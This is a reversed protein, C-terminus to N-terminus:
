NGDIRIAEPLRVSDDILSTILLRRGNGRMYLGLQLIYSGDLLGATAVEHRQVVIDGPQLMSAAADWGDHQNAIEGQEDVLHVFSSLDDPLSALVQWMTFLRLPREEDPPLIEYGILKIREDFVFDVQNALAAPQAPLNYVAFSPAGESRFLPREGIGSVRLLDPPIPAFEPVYLRGLEGGAPFVVAGSLGMGTQVWRPIAPLNSMRRLSDADIPEFFAEAVVLRQPKESEIRHGIDRLVTQYKLRTDLAAPWAIFGDQVTRAVNLLLVVALAVVFFARIFASEWLNKVKERWRSGAVLRWGGVGMGPLLYIVPMVGILRVTSPAQPTVASPVLGVGLWVLLLAMREDRWRWLMTALGLYALVATGWDFLPRNPLTYTWRPDGTFSLVGLTATATEWIPGIDGDRLADLPGALQDVRQQLSPDRWLTIQMPAAVLAFAGLVVVLWRWWVMNGITRQGALRRALAFGIPLFFVVRAGTYSYFSFGLFLGALLPRKWFWAALLLLVPEFIPRLGMRSFIIPWWSVAVGTGGMLAVLAGWERRAWRLLLAVLLMGLYVAPLRVSLVNDGFMVQFPVAFYHYLPEHGYGERFFFAHEGQRIFLAVDANLVEDQALGPPVDALLVLRFIAALLLVATAWWVFNRRLFAFDVFTM